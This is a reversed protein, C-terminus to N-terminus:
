GLHGEPQYIPITSEPTLRVATKAHKVTVKQPSLVWVPRESARIIRRATSGLNAETTMGSHAVIAIMMKRKEALKVISEAVDVNLNTEVITETHIGNKRAESAWKELDLEAERRRESLYNEFSYYTDLITDLASPHAREMKHYLHLNAKQMKAFEVIQRFAEYSPPSFDTSFLIHKLDIRRSWNPGIVLTPLGARYLLTESFGGIAWRSKEQTRKSVIMMHAHSLKAYNVLTETMERNSRGRSSLVVLPKIGTIKRKGLIKSFSKKTLELTKGNLTTTSIYVPEIELINERTLSYLAKAASVQTSAEKSFPDVAWIVKKKRSM